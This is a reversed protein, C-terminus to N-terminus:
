FRRRSWLVVSYAIQLSKLGRVTLLGEPILGVISATAMIGTAVGWLGVLWADSFDDKFFFPLAGLGTALDTILGAVFVLM